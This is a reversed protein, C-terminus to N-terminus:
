YVGKNLHDSRRQKAPNVPIQLGGTDRLWDFLDSRMQKAIQQHDPSKILNNVEDPDSKLDYLENTDWVGYNFIYKYQDNRVGFMTPTSPFDVEWYYEYFARDRWPIQQGRLLPLFSNGQMQAPKVLGAVDLLMPAIDINQVVQTVKTKPQILGPCRALLPVRMSEEYMHRKDILGREGFSFGNDGMYVVLTNEDLDNAKLWDLVRGVSDDVGLLTEAYRHYFDNFGIQGHYMYDVGHWSYRQKKVWDPIGALNVKLPGNEPSRSTKGWIKSSDTATLYMSAPYNIPM